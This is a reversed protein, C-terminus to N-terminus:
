VTSVAEEFNSGTNKKKPQSGIKQTPSSLSMSEQYKIFHALDVSYM